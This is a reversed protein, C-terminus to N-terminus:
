TPRNSRADAVLKTQSEEFRRAFSIPDTSREPVRLVNQVINDGVHVNPGNKPMYDLLKAVLEFAAVKEKTKDEAKAADLTLKALANRSIPVPEDDGLNRLRHLEIQVVADNIWNAAQMARGINQQGQFLSYGAMRWNSADNYVIRAFALKLEVEDEDDFIIPTDDSSFSNEPKAWAM